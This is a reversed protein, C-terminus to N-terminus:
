IRFVLAIRLFPIKKLPDFHNKFNAGFVSVSPEWLFTLIAWCEYNCLYHDLPSEMYQTNWSTPGMHMSLITLSVYSHSWDLRKKLSKTIELSHSKSMYNSHMNLLIAFTTNHFKQSCLNEIILFIAIHLLFMENCTPLIHFNVGVFVLSIYM